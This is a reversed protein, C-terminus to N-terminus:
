RKFAFQTNGNIQDDGQRVLFWQKELVNRHFCQFHWIIGETVIDDGVLVADRVITPVTETAKDTGGSIDPAAFIHFLM